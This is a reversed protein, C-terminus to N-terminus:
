TQYASTDRDTDQDSVCRERSGPEIRIPHLAVRQQGAALGRRRHGSITECDGVGKTEGRGAAPAHPLPDCSAVDGARM